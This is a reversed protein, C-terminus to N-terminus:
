REFPNQGLPGQNRVGFRKIYSRDAPTQKVMRLARGFAKTMTINQVQAATSSKVGKQNIKYLEAVYPVLARFVGDDFPFLDSEIELVTDRWYLYVYRYGAIESTPSRDIYIQKEIPSIAAFFPQGTFKDPQTQINRLEEYGGKYEDIYFGKQEEHLPWRLQILDDELDYHRVGTALTIFSEEGQYPKMTRAKSYLQDVSENWAQKALDIFVQKGSNTLSSLINTESIISVRKLVENVGNLLSKSV